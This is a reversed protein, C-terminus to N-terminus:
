HKMHKYDVRRTYDIDLLELIDCMVCWKARARQVSDTRLYDTDTPKNNGHALFLARDITTHLKDWLSADMDQLMKIQDENLKSM